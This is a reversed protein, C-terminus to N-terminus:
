LAKVSSLSTIRRSQDRAHESSLDLAHAVMGLKFSVMEFHTEYSTTIVHDNMADYESGTQARLCRLTVIHRQTLKGGVETLVFVLHTRPHVTPKSSTRSVSSKLTRSDAMEKSINM